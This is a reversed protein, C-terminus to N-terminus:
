ALLYSATMAFGVALALPVFLAKGVGVMFLSPIFVALVSLMAVLLPVAVEGASDVVARAIPQGTALHAHINEIAVTSEDVLIGVALALGGLTMINITQGVAWLSVVSALLAFPITLLVIFASRANRLFLLVMLGTLLAGLVIEVSLSRIANKVYLSQDFEFSINIDDPVVAQFKPIAEKVLNVVSVTSADARKTVPIYIARKSNVLAYGSLIDSTNEIVGIDRLYVAPGAGTRIPINGLEQINTV